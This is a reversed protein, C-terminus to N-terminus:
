ILFISLDIFIYLYTLCFILFIITTLIKVLDIKGYQNKLDIDKFTELEKHIENLETTNKIKDLFKQLDKEIAKISQTINKFLIFWIMIFFVIGLILVVLNKLISEGKFDFNNLLFIFGIPVGFIYNSAKAISDYIRDVINQFYETSSNKIKDFTFGSLFLSYSIDYNSLLVEWGEILKQYSNGNKDLFNILENIFLQKRVSKNSPKIIKSIFKKDISFNIKKLDDFNYDIDLEIGNGARYYFLKLNIGLPKEYDCIETLFNILVLNTEYNKILSNESNNARYDLEKIFYDNTIIKYKNSNIFEEITEYYNTVDSIKFDISIENVLYNKIIQVDINSKTEPDSIEILKSDILISLYELDDETLNVISGYIYSNDRNYGTIRNILLITCELNNKRM